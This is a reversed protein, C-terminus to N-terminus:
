GTETTHTIGSQTHHDQHVVSSCGTRMLTTSTHAVVFLFPTATRRWSQTIQASVTSGTALSSNSVKLNTGSGGAGSKAEM